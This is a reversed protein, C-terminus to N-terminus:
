HGGAEVAAAVVKGTFAQYAALAQGLFDKLLGPDGVAAGLEGLAALPTEAEAPAGLVRLGRPAWWDACGAPCLGSPVWVRTKAPQVTLGAPAFAAAALEPVKAAAGAPLGVLTDDLYAGLVLEAEAQEQTYGHETVLLRLLSERLAALPKRVGAAFLLPGLVDGREVGLTAYLEEGRGDAGM